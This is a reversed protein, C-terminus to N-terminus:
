SLILKNCIWTAYEVTRIVHKM